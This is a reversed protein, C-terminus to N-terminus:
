LPFVANNLFPLDRLRPLFPATCRCCQQSLPPSTSTSPNSSYLSPITSFPSTVCLHFSQLQVVVTHNLFPLHRLPPLFPATCRCCSQSLPPSASTSPISSYLSLMISFPSTVCLHFSHLQVVVAHNLFPLHRLPPLFPATCRCYPQSLPPSASTSPISSYMSLM